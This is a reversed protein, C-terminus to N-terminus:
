GYKVRVYSASWDIRGTNADRVYVEGGHIAKYLEACERIYFYFRQGNTAILVYEM